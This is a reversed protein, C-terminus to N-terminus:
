GYSKVTAPRGTASVKVVAAVLDAAAGSDLAAACHELGTMTNPVVGAVELSLAASLMLANRAPGDQGCFVQTLRHANETSTGGKLDVISCRGLGFHRPEIVKRDVVGPRVDFLHFPGVPTPEDWGQAGHVVFVRRIPLGSFADAILKAAPLSYAGVLAYPPAAPNTLPGLLNFVTRVGLVRRIAALNKMAPHFHPAFLFTFGTEALLRGAETADAPLHMGLAELVDASGSRSSVARNGHKIVPTGCAATLLAAGTSLNLSDSGDGGTGVIDVAPFGPEITPRLALKRMARAFGRLEDASEGKLRLASLVAGVLEPSDSAETLRILLVEAQQESLDKRDLLQELTDKM